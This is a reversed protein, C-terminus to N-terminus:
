GTSRRVDRTPFSQRGIDPSVQSPDLVPRVGLCARPTLGVHGFNVVMCNTHYRGTGCRCAPKLPFRRRHGNRTCNPRWIVKCPTGEPPEFSSSGTKSMDTSKLPLHPRPPRLSVGPAGINAMKDSSHLYRETAHSGRCGGASLWDHSKALVFSPTSLYCDDPCLESRQRPYLLAAAAGDVM